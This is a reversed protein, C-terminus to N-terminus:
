FTGSDLLKNCEQHCLQNQQCVGSDLCVRAAYVACATVGLEPYTGGGTPHPTANGAQSHGADSACSACNDGVSPNVRPIACETAQCVSYCLSPQCACARVTDLFVKRGEPDATTDCCAVCAAVNKNNQFCAIEQDNFGPYKSGDPFVQADYSADPFSAADDSADGFDSTKSTSCAFAAAILPISLAVLLVLRKM